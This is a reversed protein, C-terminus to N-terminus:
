KCSYIYVFIYLFIFLEYANLETSSDIFFFPEHIDTRTAGGSFQKCSVKLKFVSQSQSSSPHRVSTTKRHSFFLLMHMAGYRQNEEPVLRAPQASVDRGSFDDVSEALWGFARLSLAAARALGTSRAASVYASRAM